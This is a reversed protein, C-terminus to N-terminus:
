CVKRLRAIFHGPMDHIHPHFRLYLDRFLGWAGRSGRKVDVEEARLCKEEALLSEVVAENEEITVTCTSYVIVGGEKVIKAAVRLFQIQYRSMTLVDEYRKRDYVKPRVGLASCPPDILVKGPKLWPFDIDLYRSDARWVEVFPAHGLRELVELMRRLKNASHDFAIVLSKGRTLEVIHGTKGGPAACMDVVFDDPKPDLVRVAYMSPASQPYLFGMNYEPLERIPPASYISKVVKVAIGRAGDRRAKVMTECDIAAEGIAVVVGSPAVVAVLSGRRIRLDCKEVGPIYLNAGLMVSEAAEKSAYVKEELEEVAFPGRVPFYIAEELDEDPYVEVGRSRLRDILEGRAIKMTNVRAYLRSGPESVSKLFRHLDDGYVRRLAELLASDYDYISPHVL